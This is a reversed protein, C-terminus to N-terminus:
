SSQHHELLIDEVSQGESKRSRRWGAVLFIYNNSSIILYVVSIYLCMCVCIYTYLYISLYISLYVSLYIFLM